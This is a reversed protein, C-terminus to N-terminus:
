KVANGKLANPIKSIGKEQCVLCYYVETTQANSVIVKRLYLFSLNVAGTQREKPTKGFERAVKCVRTIWFNKESNFEKLM